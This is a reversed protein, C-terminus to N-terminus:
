TFAPGALSVTALLWAAYACRMADAHRILRLPHTAPSVVALFERDLRNNLVIAASSQAAFAPPWDDLAFVIGAKVSTFLLKLNQRLCGIAFYQCRCCCDALRIQRITPHDIQREAAALAAYGHGAKNLALFSISGAFITAFAFYRRHADTISL